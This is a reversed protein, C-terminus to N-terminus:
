RPSCRSYTENIDCVCGFGNLVHDWSKEAAQQDSRLPFLTFPSTALSPSCRGGEVHFHPVLRHSMESRYHTVCSGTSSWAHEDVVHPPPQGCLDSRLVTPILAVHGSIHDTNTQRFLASCPRTHIQVRFSFLVGRGSRSKEENEKRERDGM